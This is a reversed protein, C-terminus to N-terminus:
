RGFGYNYQKGTEVKREEQRAVAKLYDPCLGPRYWVYLKLGYKFAEWKKGGSGCFQPSHRGKRCAECEAPQRLIQMWALRDYADSSQGLGCTTLSGIDDFERSLFDYIRDDMSEQLSPIDKFRTHALCMSLIPEWVDAPTEFTTEYEAIANTM